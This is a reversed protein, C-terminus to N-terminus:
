ELERQYETNHKGPLVCRLEQNKPPTIAASRAAYSEVGATIMVAGGVFTRRFADNLQRIRDAKSETTNTMAFDGSTSLVSPPQGTAPTRWISPAARLGGRHTQSSQLCHGADSARSTSTPNSIIAVHKRKVKSPITRSEDPWRIIFDRKDIATIIAPWWGFSGDPYKAIVYSGVRLTDWPSVPAASVNESRTASVAAPNAASPPKDDHPASPAPASSSAGISSKLDTSTEAAISPTPPSSTTSPATLNVNQELTPKAGAPETNTPTLSADVGSAKRVYEQIRRYVESSVSGVIMRGSGKLVKM